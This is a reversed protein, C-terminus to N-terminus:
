RCRWVVEKLGINDLKESWECCNRTKTDEARPFHTPLQKPIPKEQFHSSNARPLLKAHTKGAKKPRTKAQPARSHSRAAHPFPAAAHPACPLPDLTDRRLNQSPPKRARSAM